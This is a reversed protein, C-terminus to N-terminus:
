FLTVNALASFAVITVVALDVYVFACLARTQIAAKTDIADVVECAITAVRAVLAVKALHVHVLTATQFGADSATADVRRATITADALAIVVAPTMAILFIWALRWNRWECVYTKLDKAM